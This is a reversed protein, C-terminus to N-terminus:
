DITIPNNPGGPTPHTPPRRIPTPTAPLEHSANSIAPTSIQSARFDQRRIEVIEAEGELDGEATLDIVLPQPKLIPTRVLRTLKRVSPSTTTFYKRSKRDHVPSIINPTAPRRLRLLVPNSKNRTKVKTQLKKMSRCVKAACCILPSFFQEQWEELAEPGCENYYAGIISEFADGAPKIPGEMDFYGLRAMIQAFTANATLASRAQSYYHATGESLFKYLTQAVFSTMLADGLFELRDRELGDHRIKNWSEDSLKPLELKFNPDKILEIVKRQIHKYGLQM